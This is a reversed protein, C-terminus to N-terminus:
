MVVSQHKMVMENNDTEPNPISATNRNPTPKVRSVAVETTQRVKATPNLPNAMEPSTKNAIFEVFLIEQNVNCRIREKCVGDIHFDTELPLFFTHPYCETHTTM